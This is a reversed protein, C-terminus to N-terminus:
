MQECHAKMCASSDRKGKANAPSEQKELSPLRQLSDTATAPTTSYQWDFTIARSGRACARGCVVCLSVLLGCAHVRGGTIKGSAAEAASRWIFGYRTNVSEFEALVCSFDVSLTVDMPYTLLGIPIYSLNSNRVAKSNNSFKSWQNVRRVERYKSESEFYM